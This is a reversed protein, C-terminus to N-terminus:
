LVSIGQETATLHCIILIDNSTYNIPFPKNQKRQTFHACIYIYYHKSVTWNRLLVFNWNILLAISYVDKMKRMLLFTGKLGNIM